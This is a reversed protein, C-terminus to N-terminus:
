GMYVLGKLIKHKCLAYCWLFEGDLGAHHITGSWGPNVGTCMMLTDLSFQILNQLPPFKKTMCKAGSVFYTCVYETNVLM